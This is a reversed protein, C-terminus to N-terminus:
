GLSTLYTAWVECSSRSPSSFKEWVQGFTPTSEGASTFFSPTQALSSTRFCTSLSLHYGSRVSLPLSLSLSLSIEM